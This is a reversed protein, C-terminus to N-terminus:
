RAIPHCVRTEQTQDQEPAYMQTEGKVHECICMQWVNSDLARLVNTRLKQRLKYGCKGTHLCWNLERCKFTHQTSRPIGAKNCCRGQVHHKHSSQCKQLVCSVTAQHIMLQLKINSRTSWVECQRMLVLYM